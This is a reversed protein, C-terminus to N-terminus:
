RDVRSKGTGRCTCYRWWFAFSYGVGNQSTDKWELIRSSKEKMGSPAIFLATAGIIAIMTDDLTLIKTANILDKTIWLFATICFIILVRKEAVQMPGLEQIKKKIVVRTSPDSKLHNPFLFKTLVFYLAIMLLISIPMCLIMWDIFQVTYHYKKEMFAMFAVNPPTGIITAVGGFNSAYAIALM